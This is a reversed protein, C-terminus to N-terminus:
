FWKRKKFYLIMAIGLFVMGLVTLYFGLSHTAGPIHTFNMGFVGALFSLPLFVTSVITLAKMIENLRLSTSNLYIDLGSTIIDRLTDALDQIRVLHDYIDRFYYRSQADIQHFEDRSLRNMVERLPSIIRRISMIDHKLSLLKELTSPTPKQLVSDELWEVDSEMQDIIPLYADVLGDLLSHCLFDSGFDSIRFDRRARNWTKEVSPMFPDTFISVVFSEGLFIDLEATTIETSNENKFIAHSIIFLYDVFDDVKASQYGSSQCDEVALPHFHFTDLLVQQIEDNSASELSVWVFGNPSSLKSKIEELSNLYEPSNHPDFFISRIM